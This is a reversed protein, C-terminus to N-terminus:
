IHVITDSNNKCYFELDLSRHKIYFSHDCFLWNLKNGVDEFISVLYICLFIEVSCAFINKDVVVRCHWDVGTGSFTVNFVCVILDITFSESCSYEM